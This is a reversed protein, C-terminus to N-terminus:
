WCGFLQALARDFTKSIECLILRIEKGESNFDNGNQKYSM